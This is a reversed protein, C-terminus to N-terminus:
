YYSRHCPNAAVDCWLRLHIALSSARWSTEVSGSLANWLVDRRRTEQQGRLASRQNGTPTPGVKAIVATLEDLPLSGWQGLESTDFALASSTGLLLALPVLRLPIPLRGRGRSLFNFFVE